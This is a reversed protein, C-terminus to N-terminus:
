RVRRGRWNVVVLGAGLLLVTAPEPVRMVLNDLARGTQQEIIAGLLLFNSNSYAWQTGPRFQLPSGSRSPVL